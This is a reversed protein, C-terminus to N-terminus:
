VDPVGGLHGMVWLRSVTWIEGDRKLDDVKVKVRRVVTRGKRSRGVTFLRVDDNDLSLGDLVLPNHSTLLMQKDDRGGLVWECLRSMLARALRPNLGHDVNDIALVRPATPLKALVAAFLVYLAGESVDYGTLIDRGKAMFRDRFKLVRSSSAVSPSLPIRGSGWQSDVWQSGFMAAWDILELIQSTVETVSENGSRAQLLENVAEPLRGGALGVPKRMQPDSTLGRLTNTNPSYISYAALQGLLSSSPSESSLEVAQLAALGRHFDFQKHSAPSRGVIKKDGDMLLENKFTWAPEPDQMPNNLEVAYSAGKTFAELRISGRIRSGSFSSKYRSPVGPRVGRRQLAEDDVRGNAAAGLVGIAELLNSKGSGNAGIFVNVRGLAVDVDLLSKFSKISISRIM